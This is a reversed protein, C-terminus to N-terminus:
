YREAEIPENGGEVDYAVLLEYGRYNGSKAEDVLRLLWDTRGNGNLDTSAVIQITFHWAKLDVGAEYRSHYAAEPEIEALTYHEDTVRPGLSSRFGRLDLRTMLQKGYSEPSYQIGGAERSEKLAAVADCVLYDGSVLRNDVGEALADSNDQRLYERCTEVTIGSSFTLQPRKRDLTQEYNHFAELLDASFIRDSEPAQNALSCGAILALAFPISRGANSM